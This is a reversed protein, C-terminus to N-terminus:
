INSLASFCLGQLLATLCCGLLIGAAFYRAGRTREELSLNRGRYIHVGFWVLFLASMSFGVVLPVITRPNGRGMASAVGALLMTGLFVMIIVGLFMGGLVCLARLLPHLPPSTPQWYDLPQNEEPREPEQSM